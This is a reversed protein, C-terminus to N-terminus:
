ADYPPVEAKNQAMKLSGKCVLCTEAHRKLRERVEHLRGQARAANQKAEESMSAYHEYQSQGHQEEEELHQREVCTM